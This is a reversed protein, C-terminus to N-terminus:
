QTFRRAKSGRGRTLKIHVYVFGIGSGIILPISVVLTALIDYALSDGVASFRYSFVLITASLLFYTVVFVVNIIQKLKRM